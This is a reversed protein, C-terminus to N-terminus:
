YWLGSFYKIFLKMGYNIQKQRNKSAKHREKMSKTYDIDEQQIYLKFAKIMKNITDKWQEMTFGNPYGYLCHDRFYCLRGYIYLALSYDLSFFETGSFGEEDELNRDLIDENKEFPFSTEKLGLEAYYHNFKM